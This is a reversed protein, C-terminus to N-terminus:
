AQKPTVKTNSIRKGKAVTCYFTRSLIKEDSSHEYV